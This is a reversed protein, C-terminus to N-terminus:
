NFRAKQCPWPTPQASLLRPTNTRVYGCSFPQPPPLVSGVPAPAPLGPRLWLRFLMEQKAQVCRGTSPARGRCTPARPESLGLRSWIVCCVLRPGVQVGARVDCRRRPRGVGQVVECTVFHETEITSTTVSRLQCFGDLQGKCHQRKLTNCGSLTSGVSLLPHTCGWSGHSPKWRQALGLAGEM